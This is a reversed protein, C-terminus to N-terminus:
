ALIFKTYSQIIKFNMWNQLNTSWIHNVNSTRLSASTESPYCSRRCNILFRGLEYIASFKQIRFQEAFYQSFM